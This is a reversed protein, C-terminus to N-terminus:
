LLVPLLPITGTTTVIAENSTVRPLHYGAMAVLNVGIALSSNQPLKGLNVTM